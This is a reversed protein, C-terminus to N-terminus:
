YSNDQKMQLSLSALHGLKRVLEEYTEVQDLQEVLKGVRPDRAESDQWKEVEEYHKEYVHFSGANVTLDGLGVDIGRQRLLLQVSKAVMSFTFIDYSQGFVADNSRMTSTMYLLPKQELVGDEVEVTSDRIFFQMGVTCPIDKSEGPRERWINLYSQRSANDKELSSAIYSLQDVVKPGYAGNMTVGDDSFNKYGKMYKSVESTLNSGSTVWEAESFMFPHNMKRDIFDIYAPMPVKYTGNLQERVEMGRPSAVFDPNQVVDISNSKLVENAINRESSIKELPKRSEFEM